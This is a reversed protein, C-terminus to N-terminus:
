HFAAWTASGAAGGSTCGYFKNDTTCFVIDGTNGAVDNDMSVSYTVTIDPYDRLRRMIYDLIQNLRSLGTEDFKSLRSYPPNFKM